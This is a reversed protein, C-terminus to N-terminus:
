FWSSWHQDFMALDEFLRHSATSRLSCGDTAQMATAAAAAAV